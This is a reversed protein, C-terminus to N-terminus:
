STFGLGLAERPALRPDLRGFLYVLAVTGPGLVIFLLSEWNTDKRQM